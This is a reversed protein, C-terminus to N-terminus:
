SIALIEAYAREKEAMRDGFMRSESIVEPAKGKRYDACEVSGNFLAYATNASEPHNIGFLEYLETAGDRLRQTRNMFFQHVNQAREASEYWDQHEDPIDDKKYTDTVKARASRKPEKYVRELVAEVEDQHMSKHIMRNLNDVTFDLKRTVEKM